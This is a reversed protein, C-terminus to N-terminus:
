QKQEEMDKFLNSVVMASFMTFEMLRVAYFEVNDEPIQMDQIAKACARTADERNIVIVDKM